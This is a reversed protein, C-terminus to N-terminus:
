GLFLLLTLPLRPDVPSFGPVSEGVKYLANYDKSLYKNVKPPNLVAVPGPRTQQAKVDLMTKLQAVKNRGREGVDM